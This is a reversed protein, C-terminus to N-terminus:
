SFFRWSYCNSWFASKQVLFHPLLLVFPNIQLFTLNPLTFFQCLSFIVSLNLTQEPCDSCFYYYALLDTTFSPTRSYYRKPPCGLTIPACCACLKPIIFEQLDTKTCLIKSCKMPQLLYRVFNVRLCTKHWWLPMTQTQIQSDIMPLDLICASPFILGLAAIDSPM